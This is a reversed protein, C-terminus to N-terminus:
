LRSTTHRRSRRHAASRRHPVAGSRCLHCLPEGPRMPSRFLTVHAARQRLSDFSRRQSATERVRSQSLLAFSGGNCQSSLNKQIFSRDRDLKARTSMAPASRTAHLADFGFYRAGPASHESPGRQGRPVGKSYSRLPGVSAGAHVGWQPGLWPALPIHSPDPAKVLSANGDPAQSSSPTTHVIRASHSPGHGGSPEATPGSLRKMQLHVIRSHAQVTSAVAGDAVAQDHRMGSPLSKLEGSPPSPECTSADSAPAHAGGYLALERDASEFNRRPRRSKRRPSAAFRRVKTLAAEARALHFDRRDGDAGRQWRAHSM